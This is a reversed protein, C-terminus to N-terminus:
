QKKLSLISQKDVVYIESHADYPNAYESIAWANNAADELAQNYAAKMASVINRRLYQTYDVMGDHNNLLWRYENAIVYAKEEIYKEIDM